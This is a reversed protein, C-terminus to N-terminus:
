CEFLSLQVQEYDPTSKSWDVHRHYDLFAERGIFRGAYQGQEVRWWGDDCHVEGEVIQDVAFSKGGKTLYTKGLEMKNM